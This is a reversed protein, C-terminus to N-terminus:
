DDWLRLTQRFLVIAHLFRILGYICITGGGAREEVRKGSEPRDEGLGGALDKRGAPFKKASRRCFKQM